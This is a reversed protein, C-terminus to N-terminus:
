IDTSKIRIRADRTRGDSFKLKYIDYGLKNSTTQIENRLRNLQATDKNKVALEAANQLNELRKVGDNLINIANGYDWARTSDGKARRWKPTDDIQKLDQKLNNVFENFHNVNTQIIGPNDVTGLVDGKAFEFAADQKAVAKNRLEPIKTLDDALAKNRDTLALQTATLKSGTSKGSADFNFLKDIQNTVVGNADTKDEFGFIKKLEDKSYAALEQPTKKLFDLKDQESKLKEAVKLKGSAIGEVYDKEAVDAREETRDQEELGAAADQQIAELDKGYIQSALGGYKKANWRPGFIQALKGVNGGKEALVKERKAMETEFTSPGAIQGLNGKTLKDQADQLIKELKAKQELLLKADAANATAIQANLANIADTTSKIENNITTQANDVDTVTATDGPLAAVPTPPTTTGSYVASTANPAIGAIATGVNAATEAGATKVEQTAAQLAGTTNAVMSTGAAASGGLAQPKKLTERAEKQQEAGAKAQAFFTGTRTPQRIGM